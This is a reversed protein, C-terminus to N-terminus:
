TNLVGKLENMTGEIVEDDEKILENTSKIINNLIRSLEEAIALLGNAENIHASEIELNYLVIQLEKAYKLNAKSITDVHTVLNYLNDYIEKSNM